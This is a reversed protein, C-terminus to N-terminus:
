GPQILWTNGKPWINGSSVSVRFGPNPVTLSETGDTFDTISKYQRTHFDWPMHLPPVTRWCCTWSFPEMGAKSKQEGRCATYDWPRSAWIPVTTLGLGQVESCFIPTFIKCLRWGSTVEVELYIWFTGTWGLFFIISGLTLRLCLFHVAQSKYWELFLPLAESLRTKTSSVCDYRPFLGQRTRGGGQSDGAMFYETWSVKHTNWHEILLDLDPHLGRSEAQPNWISAGANKQKRHM